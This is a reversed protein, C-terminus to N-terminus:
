DGSGYLVQDMTRRSDGMIELKSIELEVGADGEDQPQESGDEIEDGDDDPEDNGHQVTASARLEVRAGAEPLKDALGLAEIQAPTLTLTLTEDGAQQPVDNMEDM